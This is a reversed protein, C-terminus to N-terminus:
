FATTINVDKLAIHPMQCPISYDWWRVWTSERTMGVVRKFMDVINESIRMGSVAEVAEGDKIIFGIDRQLTSFEGTIYNQFRTYWVNTIYIGDKVDVLLDELSSGGLPEIILSHAMPYVFGAHGTSETGFKNATSLNHLYNEIVGKKVLYLDRTPIGEQDFSHAGPNGPLLPKDSLSISEDLVEEGMKDVFPSSQMIISMASLGNSLYNFLNGAVVPSM